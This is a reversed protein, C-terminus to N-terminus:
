PWFRGGSQPFSNLTIGYLAAAREKTAKIQRLFTYNHGIGGSCQIGYHNISRAQGIRHLGTGLEDGFCYTERQKQGPNLASSGAVTQAAYGNDM